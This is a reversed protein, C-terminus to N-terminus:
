WNHWPNHPSYNQMDYARVLPSKGVKAKLENYYNDTQGSLIYKRNYDSLRTFLAHVEASPNTAVLPDWSFVMICLTVVLLTRVLM